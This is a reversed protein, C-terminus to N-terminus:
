KEIQMQHSEVVAKANTSLLNYTSKLVVVNTYQFKRDFSNLCKMLNHLYVNGVKTTPKGTKSCTSDRAGTSKIVVIDSSDFGQKCDECRKVAKRNSYRIGRLQCM